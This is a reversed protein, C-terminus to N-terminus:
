YGIFRKHEIQFPGKDAFAQIDFMANLKGKVTAEVYTYTNDLSFDYSNKYYEKGEM